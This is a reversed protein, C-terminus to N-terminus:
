RKTLVIDNRYKRKELQLRCVLHGRSQLESTHEESREGPLLTGQARLGVRLREERLLTAGGTLRLLDADGALHAGLAQLIGKGVVFPEADPTAQGFALPALELAAGHSRRYQRRPSRRPVSSTM